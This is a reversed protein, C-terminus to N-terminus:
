ARDHTDGAKDTARTSDTSHKTSDMQRLAQIALKHAEIYQDHFNRAGPECDDEESVDRWRCEERQIHSDQYWIAVSIKEDTPKQYQSLATIALDFAAMQEDHM